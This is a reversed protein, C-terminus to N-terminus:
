LLYTDIFCSFPFQSQIGLLLSVSSMYRCTQLIREPGPLSNLLSWANVTSALRLWVVGCGITLQPKLPALSWPFFIWVTIQVHTTQFLPCLFLRSHLSGLPSLFNQMELLHDMRYNSSVLKALMSLSFLSDVVSNCEGESWDM